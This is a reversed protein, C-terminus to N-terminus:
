RQDQWEGNRKREKQNGIDVARASSDNANMRLVQLHEILAQFRLQAPLPPACSPRVASGEGASREPRSSLFSLTVSLVPGHGLSLSTTPPVNLTEM